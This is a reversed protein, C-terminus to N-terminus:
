QGAALRQSRLVMWIKGLYNKGLWSGDPQRGAGWFLGSGRQRSTVDEIIERPNTELLQPLLHPHQELKLLLVKKMLGLDALSQPQVTMRNALSKAMMKAGMPSKEERIAERIEEDEFRLAQFLAETTRWGKGEYVIPFPAMNGLWGYPLKVKTFTIPETTTSTASTETTTTM